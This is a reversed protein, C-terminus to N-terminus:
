LTKVALFVSAASSNGIFACYFRQVARFVIRANSQLAGIASEPAAGHDNFRNV